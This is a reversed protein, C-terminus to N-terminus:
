NQPLYFDVSVSRDRRYFSHIEVHRVFSGDDDTFAYPHGSESSNWEGPKGCPLVPESSIREFHIGDTSTALGLKIQHRVDNGAARYLMVFKKSEEDYIAAPNLVCKEEWENKPNPKLIPNGEYKKLKM